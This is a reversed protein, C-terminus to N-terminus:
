APVVTIIIIKVVDIQQGYGSREWTQAADM